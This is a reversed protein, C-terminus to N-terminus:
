FSKFLGAAIEFLLLACLWLSYSDTLYAHQLDLPGICYARSLELNDNESAPGWNKLDSIFISRTYLFYKYMNYAMVFSSM